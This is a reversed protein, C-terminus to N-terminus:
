LLEKVAKRINEFIEKDLYGIKRVFRKTDVVRSQSLLARAEKGDVLGISPRLPHKHTASTLPVVFCTKRSLGKIVLVPRRFEEGSGDQEFGINVGLTCWWLEREHYLKNEGNQHLEKKSKNWEDFDKQM